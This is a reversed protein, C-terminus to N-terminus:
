GRSRSSPSRLWPCSSSRDRLQGAFRSAGVRLRGTGEPVYLVFSDRRRKGGVGSLVAARRLGVEGHQPRLLPPQRSREHGDRHLREGLFQIRPGPCDVRQGARVFHRLQNRDASPRRLGVYNQPVVVTNTPTVAIPSTIAGGVLLWAGGATLVVLNNMPVLWKIANVQNAAITMVIADSAQSPNSVDMNKFDAPQTMWITQPNQNSGAFVKRQQFYTACSPFNGSPTVTASFTAGSGTGQNFVLTDGNTYGSGGPSEYGGGLGPSLPAGHIATIVGNTVDAIFTAGTGGGKATITINGFYGQGGSLLKVGIVTGNLLGSGVTIIAEAGSGQNATTIAPNQYNQGGTTVAVATIVGSVITPTLVAGTGTIDTAIVEITDDYGSGGDIVTVSTIPGEAFPNTGQPPAQTFDPAIETDVFSPGYATGIYGYQVNAPVISLEYTPQAKYIRYYQAATLPTWTLSNYAGADSNLQVGNKTAPASAFSEDPPSASVATVVYSYQWKTDTYGSTGATNAFTLGAPAAVTPAFSITELNWVWHQPRTLDAPPYSPHCLTLVDNSQTWKITQVDQGAYPTTLTFVRAVTGGSGGYATYSTTNVVNGDLDTLTFTNATANQVLYQRGPTSDLQTKTGSIFIQDGNNYGHNDATIVGPNAQTIGTIGISPELVYGANGTSSNMIVRMYHHGFELTYAQLINFQFPILQAAYPLGTAPNIPCGVAPSSNRCRGVFETGARNSAGGHVWVFFNRLLKAAIHYKALDVRAYLSPAIEGAAFSTQIMNLLPAM